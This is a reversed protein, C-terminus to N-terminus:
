LWTVSSVLRILIGLAVSSIAFHSHMLEVAIHLLGVAIDESTGVEVPRRVRRVEFRHAVEVVPDFPGQTIATAEGGRGYGLAAFVV